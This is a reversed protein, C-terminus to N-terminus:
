HIEPDINEKPGVAGFQSIELSGCPIRIETVNSNTALLVFSMLSKTAAQALIMIGEQAGTAGKTVKGIRLSSQSYRHMSNIM